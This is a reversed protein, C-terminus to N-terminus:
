CQSGSDGCSDYLGSVAEQMEGFTVDAYMNATITPSAHGLQKQVARLNGTKSLMHVALTHRASHISLTDTPLGARELAKKFSQQLGRATMPGRKGILLADEPGTPLDTSRKWETFDRLHDALERGLALSERQPKRRKRRDVRLSGRKLDLNRHRIAAMESVRLGTSLALDVIMWALVGGKRGKAKDTIARAEAVTRLREAEEASLYKERDIAQVNGTATATATSTITM